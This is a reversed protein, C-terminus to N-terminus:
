LFYLFMFYYFNEVFITLIYPHYLYCLFLYLSNCLPADVMTGVNLSPHLVILHLMRAHLSWPQHEVTYCGKSPSLPLSRSLSYRRRAQRHVPIVGCHTSNPPPPPPPPSLFPLHHLFIHHLSKVLTTQLWNSYQLDVSYSTYQVHVTHVSYMCM